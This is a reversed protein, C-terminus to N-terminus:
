STPRTGHEAGTKLSLVSGHAKGTNWFERGAIKCNKFRHEGVMQTAVLQQDGGDALFQLEGFNYKSFIKGTLDHRDPRADCEGDIVAPGLLAPQDGKVLVDRALIMLGQCAQPPDPEQSLCRSVLDLDIKASADNREVYVGHEVLWFGFAPGAFLRSTHM